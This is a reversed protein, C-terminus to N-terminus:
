DSAAEGGEPATEVIIRGPIRASPAGMSAGGADYLWIEYSYEGPDLPCPLAVNGVERAIPVSQYGRGTKMFTPRLEMCDFSGRTDRPFFVSGSRAMAYNVWVVEGGALVRATAPDVNADTFYVTVKQQPEVPTPPPKWFGGEGGACALATAALAALVTAKRM